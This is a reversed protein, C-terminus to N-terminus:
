TYSEPPVNLLRLMQKQLASLTIPFAIREDARRFEQWALGGFAEMIRPHTPTKTERGEPFLPLSEIKERTMAQRVEREMLSGAVLALFYAHVLAAARKPKKLYVPAVELETKLASFRKEIYPQYKYIRLIERKSRKFLNTILPFVGDTRRERTLAKQNRQIRLSPIKRKRILVPDTPGPRGRKLRVPILEVREKIKVELFGEM